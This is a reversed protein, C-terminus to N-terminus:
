TGSRALPDRWFTNSALKRAQAAVLLSALRQIGWSNTGPAATVSDDLCRTPVRSYIAAM